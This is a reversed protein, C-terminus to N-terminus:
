LILEMGDHAVDWGAADVAAREESDALLIPNSNNIHVFIRRQVGLDAFAALTGTPGSVSMHGM